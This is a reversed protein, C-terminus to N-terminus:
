QYKCETWFKWDFSCDDAECCEVEQGCKPCCPVSVTIKTGPPFTNAALEIPDPDITDGKDGECSCRWRPMHEDCNEGSYIDPEMEAWMITRYELKAERNM